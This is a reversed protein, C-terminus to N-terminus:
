IVPPRTRLDACAADARAIAYNFCSQHNITEGKPRDLLLHGQDLIALRLLMMTTLAEADNRDRVFRSRNYTGGGAAQKRTLRM